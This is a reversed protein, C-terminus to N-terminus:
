DFIRLFLRRYMEPNRGLVHTRSVAMAAAVAAVAAVAAMVVAALVQLSM